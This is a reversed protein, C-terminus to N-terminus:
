RRRPPPPMEAAEMIAMEAADDCGCVLAARVTFVGDKLAVAAPRAAGDHLVSVVVDWPETEAM